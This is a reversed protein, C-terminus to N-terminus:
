ECIINCKNTCVFVIVISPNGVLDRHLQKYYVAPIYKGNDLQLNLKYICSGIEKTINDTKEFIEIPTLGKFDKILENEFVISNKFLEESTKGIVYSKEYGTEKEFSLNCGYYIGNISKWFIPMPVNDVINQLLSNTNLLMKEHEIATEYMAEIEIARASNECSILNLRAETKYFKNEYDSIEKVQQRIEDFSVCGGM